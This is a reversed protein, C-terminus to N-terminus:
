QINHTGKLHKLAYPANLNVPTTGTPELEGTLVRLVAKQMMLEPSYANIVCPMHPMDYVLYPSGYSVLILQPHHSNILAWVDRMYNGAPRIRNTGWSHTFVANLIIADYQDVFTNSKHFKGLDTENFHNVAVGYARLLDDFKNVNIDADGRLHYSLIKMGPAIKLPLINHWDRVLTVATDAIQQSVVQFHENDSTSIAPAQTTEHLQLMEKLALIRRASEEIRESSLRGNAVAQKIARFDDDANSFLIMDCGAEIAAPVIEAQKGFAMVGGMDMADTIIVGEFGMRQRLLDILIRKSLTAPPASQMHHADGMDWAPLSVHGIMVSWVGLDIAQQFTYGYTKDWQEMSLPNLINCIHSDRDDAGCGPFHKVTACMGNEQMGRIVSNAFRAIRQPDDGFSMTNTGPSYPNVNVDAVPAFAWHVGLARGEVAAARGMEYALEPNNTAGLAMTCPFTTADFIMGGAGHELDSSIILPVATDHQLWDTARKFEERAGASLFMGGPEVQGMSQQWEAKSASPEICPHLLQGIKQDLTMQKLTANVWDSHLPLPPFKQM